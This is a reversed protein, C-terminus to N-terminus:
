QCKQRKIMKKRENVTGDRTFLQMDSIENVQWQNSSNEVVKLLPEQINGANTFAFVFYKFVNPQNLYLCKGSRKFDFKNLGKRCFGTNIFFFGKLAHHWGAKHNAGTQETQWKLM